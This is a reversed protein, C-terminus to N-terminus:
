SPLIKSPNTGGPFMMQWTAEQCTFITISPFEVTDSEHLHVRRLRGGTRTVPLRALTICNGVTNRSREPPKQQDNQMILHQQERHLVQQSALPLLRGTKFCPGLLGIAYALGTTISVLRLRSERPPRPQMLACHFCFMVNPQRRVVM